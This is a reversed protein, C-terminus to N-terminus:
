RNEPNYRNLQKKRTISTQDKCRSKVGQVIKVTKGTRAM